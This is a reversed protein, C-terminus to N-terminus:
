TNVFFNVDKENISIIVTFVIFGDTQELILPIKEIRKLLEQYQCSERGIFVLDSFEM